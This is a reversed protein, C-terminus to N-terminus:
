SGFEEQYTRGRMAIEEIDLTYRPMLASLVMFDPARTGSAMIRRRIRWSSLVRPQSAGAPPKEGKVREEVEIADDCLSKSVSEYTSCGERADKKEGGSVESSGSAEKM